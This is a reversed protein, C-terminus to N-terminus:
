MFFKSFLVNIVVFVVGAIILKTNSLSKYFEDDEQSLKDGRITSNRASFRNRMAKGRTMKRGKDSSIYDEEEEEM